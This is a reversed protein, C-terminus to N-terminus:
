NNNNIMSTLDRMMEDDGSNVTAPTSGGTGIQLRDLHRQVNQYSNILEDIQAETMTGNTGVDRIMTGLEDMYNVYAQPNRRAQDLKDQDLELRETLFMIENAQQYFLRRAEQVAMERQLVLSEEQYRADNVQGVLTGQLEAVQMQAGAYKDQFDDRLAAESVAAGTTLNSSQMQAESALDEWRFNKDERMSELEAVKSMLDLNRAEQKERLSMIDRTLPNMGQAIQGLQTSDAILAGLGSLAIAKRDQDMREPSLQGEIFLKEANSPGEKIRSLFEDSRTDYIGAQANRAETDATIRAELNGTDGILELWEQASEKLPSQDAILQNVFQPKRIGGVEIGFNEWTLDPDPITEDAEDPSYASRVRRLSPDIDPLDLRYLDGMAGRAQSASGARSVRGPVLGPAIEDLDVTRYSGRAAGQDPRNGDPGQARLMVNRWNDSMMEIAAEQQLQDAKSSPPLFMNDFGYIDPDYDAPRGFRDPRGSPLGLKMRQVAEFRHADLGTPAPTHARRSTPHPHNYSPDLEALMRLIRKRAEEGPDRGPLNTPGGNAYGVIGGRAFGQMQQEQVQQEQAQQEQVGGEQMQLSPDVSPIGQLEQMRQEIVSPKKLEAQAKQAKYRERLKRRREMESAVIFQAYQGTPQQGEQVLMQDSFGELDKQQELINM